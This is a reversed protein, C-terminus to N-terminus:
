PWFRRALAHTVVVNRGDAGLDGQEFGRGEVLHLGLAEFYGPSVRHVFARPRNSADVVGMGDASYFIAASNVLPVSTTIGVSQVGPLGRLDDLLAMVQLGGAEAAPPP